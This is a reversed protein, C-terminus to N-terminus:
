GVHALKQVKKLNSTTALAVAMNYLDWVETLTVAMNNLDWVGTLDTDNKLTPM